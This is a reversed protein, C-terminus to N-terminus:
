MVFFPRPVIPRVECVSSANKRPKAAYFFDYWFSFFFLLLLILFDHWFSFFSFFFLLLLLFPPSLRVMGQDKLEQVIMLQEEFDAALEHELSTKYYFEGPNVLLRIPRWRVFCGPPPSPTPHPPSTSLHVHPSIHTNCSLRLPVNSLEM